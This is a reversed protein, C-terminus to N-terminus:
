TSRRILKAELNLIPSLRHRAPSRQSDDVQHVPAYHSNLLGSTQYIVDGSGESSPLLQDRGHNDGLSADGTKQRKFAREYGDRPARVSWDEANVLDHLRSRVTQEHHHTRKQPRATSEPAISAFREPNGLDQETPPSRVVKVTRDSIDRSERFTDGVRLHGRLANGDDDELWKIQLQSNCVFDETILGASELETVCGKGGHLDAFSDLIREHLASITVDEACPEIWTKIDEQRSASGISSIPNKWPLVKVKLRITAM